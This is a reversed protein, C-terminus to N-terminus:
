GAKKRRQAAAAVDLAAAVDYGGAAAARNPTAVINWGPIKLRTPRPLKGAKDKRRNAAIRISKPTIGGAAASAEEIVEIADSETMAAMPRLASESFIPVATGTKSSIHTQIRFAAVIQNARRVSISHRELYEEWTSAVDRYLQGAKIRALAAGGAEIVNAAKCAMGVAQDLRDFEVQEAHTLTAVNTEKGFVFDRIIGM